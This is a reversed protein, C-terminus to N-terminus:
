RAVGGFVACHWLMHPSKLPVIDEAPPIAGVHRDHNAHLPFCLDSVSDDSETGGAEIVSSANNPMYAMPASSSGMVAAVPHSSAMGNEDPTSHSVAAM